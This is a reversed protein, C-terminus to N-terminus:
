IPAYMRDREDDVFDPDLVRLSAEVWARQRPEEPLVTPETSAGPRSLVGYALAVEAHGERGEWAAAVAEGALPKGEEELPAAKIQEVLDKCVSFMFLRPSGERGALPHWAPFRRSQDQRLLEAMRLYRAQRDNNAPSLGLVGLDSFEQMVSTKGGMRGGIGVTNRISPDAWVRNSSLRWGDEDTQEWGGGGKELPLRKRLILPAVESPLGGVAKGEGDVGPGYLSDFVILNGDYDTCVVHWATPNSVGFDMCEFREWSAPVAFPAVVHVREDFMGFAAGEFVSWDGDLLRRRLGEPVRSLSARYEEVDIGDPNDGVKAPVFLVDAARDTIFRRKVWGYGQGTPTCSGRTRIPVGMEPASRMRTFGIHDYQLETFSTLEDFGVFQYAQGDYNFRDLETEVHGFRLTAGSPFTWLKGEESSRADTRTLWGQARNLLGEAGRLEPFTRRLVLAAYGPVDVYQLAAMLLADSNHTPVMARGALYLHSPSDVAICRMPSPECPEASVIYRFRLTRRRGLKQLVAKRPLRFVTESAVWKCTWKPGCDRGDLMARGERVRVKWGLSVVLEQLGDRLAPRTTTIEASGSHKAVTGDADMLGRLLELRQVRSARLYGLPIHKDGLVGLKKLRERLGVFAYTPASRGPQQVPGVPFGGAVFAEVIEADATTVSGALTTGDGLWVGFLYPDLPLRRAPLELAAAVPVAHNRRGSPTLLSAAIERTSRVTGAPPADAVATASNRESIAESFM